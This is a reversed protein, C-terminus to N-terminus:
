LKEKLIAVDGTSRLAAGAVRHGLRLRAAEANHRTAEETHVPQRGPLPVFLHRFERAPASPEAEASHGTANDTHLAPASPKAETKHETARGIQQPPRLRGPSTPWNRLLAALYGAAFADGAGVPEVVDVPPAPEFTTGGPHFSTAGLAGDKVVLVDPGPLLARVDEPRDAGWLTQAEDLGVFVVAARDALRRLVPGAEGTTWLRPRYNVDFSCTRTSLLEDVLLACNDSLAPTIGSLHTIRAQPVPTGPGLKSAASGARYYFVRTVAGPDKFFVGTPSNGDVEVHTTDVGLGRLQALILEGLPDDGVRSIWAPRLGLQALYCAVTSEAGAVDIRAPGGLALPAPPDPTVLVMAEGVCAVDFPM